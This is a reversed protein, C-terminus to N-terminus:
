GGFNPKGCSITGASCNLFPDNNPCEVSGVYGGGCHGHYVNRTANGDSDLEYEAVIYSSTDVSIVELVVYNGNPLGTTQQSLLKYGSALTTLIQM